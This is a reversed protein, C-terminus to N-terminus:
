GTPESGRLYSLFLKYPKEKPKARESGRLYSLFPAKAVHQFLGLESGRLYSLFIGFSAPVPGPHESGRLYSLFDGRMIAADIEVNAAACTASFHSSSM